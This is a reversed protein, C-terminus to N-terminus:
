VKYEEPKVNDEVFDELLSELFAPLNISSAGCSYLYIGKETTDLSEAQDFLWNEVYEKIEKQQEEKTKM